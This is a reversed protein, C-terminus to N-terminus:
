APGAAARDRAPRDHAHEDYASLTEITTATARRRAAPTRRQRTSTDDDSRSTPGDCVAPRRRSRCASVVACTATDTAAAERRPAAQRSRHHRPERDIGAELGRGHRVNETSGPKLAVTRPLFREIAVQEFAHPLERADAAGAQRPQLRERLARPIRTEASLRRRGVLSRPRACCQRAPNKVASPNGITAPRSKM